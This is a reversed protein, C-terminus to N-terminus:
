MKLIIRFTTGVNIESSKVFIKGQHYEEIIRKVLSLGLGWGRKKTTFGPSFITKFKNKEIGKGNDTVDIVIDKEKQSVEIDIKGIGDMADIANKCLNEIVWEFLPVNLKVFLPNEDEFHCNIAVKQSTRNTMYQVANQMTDNLSVLQLDPASGIKSFREAIIRLRNVDKAMEGIMKDEEHRAKLLDVWALLSSIPTGLQHATEKSLGVWVRNQEAKKTGSFAFFAILLFVIIVGFQIYPFYYLQKLLLSDDYYIYQSTEGLDIEIAKHKSKLRAIEKKYFAEDANNPIKLNRSDLLQENEDVIIVPITTNDEIISLTFEINSDEASMLQRTAEAWIEIKKQEEKSLATALRNTFLTSAIMIAAGVVIFVTKFHRSLEYLKNLNIM